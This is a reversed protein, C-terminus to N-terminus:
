APSSRSRPWARGGDGEEVMRPSCSASIFVAERVGWPYKVMACLTLLTLNLRRSEMFVQGARLSNANGEFYRLGLDDLVESLDGNLPRM